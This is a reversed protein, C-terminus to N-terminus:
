NYWYKLSTVENQDNPNMMKSIITKTADLLAMQCM